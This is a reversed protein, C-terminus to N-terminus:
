KCRRISRAIATWALTPTQARSAARLACLALPLFVSAGFGAIEGRLWLDDDGRHLLACVGRSGQHAEARKERRGELFPLLVWVMGALGFALIGMLEGDMRIM